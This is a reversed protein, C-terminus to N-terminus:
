ADRGNELWGMDAESLMERIRTDYIALDNPSLDAQWQGNTGKNFFQAEDKWRNEGAGPVFQGAKRKMNEFSATASMAELSDKAVDIDLITACREMEGQLDRQMDSYHMLHINPLHAFSRYTKFHHVLNALSFNDEEGEQHPREAWQRFGAGIDKTARHSNRGNIQNTAHNRMSFHADRPDRYVALYQCQPHFPIGDLPTHTKIFRRHTQTDLMAVVNEIPHHVADFWPSIVGPRVKLDPTGFILLACITQTWTTGCKPPTCILIDGDRPNYHDWREAAIMPSDYRITRQPLEANM